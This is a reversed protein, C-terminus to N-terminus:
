DALSLDLGALVAKIEKMQRLGLNPSKLLEDETKKVLDGVTDIEAARLAISTRVTFELDRVPKRLLQRGREKVSEVQKLKDILDRVDDPSLNDAVVRAAECALCPTLPTCGPLHVFLLHLM